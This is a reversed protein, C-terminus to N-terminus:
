IQAHSGLRHDGDTPWARHRRHRALIKAPECVSPAVNCNLLRAGIRQARQSQTQAGAFLSAGTAIGPSRRQRKPSDVCRLKLNQNQDFLRRDVIMRTMAFHQRGTNTPIASATHPEANVSGVGLFVLSMGSCANLEGNSNLVSGSVLSCPIVAPSGGPSVDSM